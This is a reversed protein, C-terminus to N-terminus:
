EPQFIAGIAFAPPLDIGAPTDLALALQQPLLRTAPGATTPIPTAIEARGLPTEVVRPPQEALLPAAIAALPRGAAAALTPSATRVTFRAAARALGLDYLPTARDAPRIADADPGLATLVAPGPAPLRVRPLVLLLRGDALSFARTSPTVALRLAARPTVAEVSTETRALTLPEDPTRRFEATAGPVGLIWAGTADRLTQEAFDLIESPSWPLRALRIGLAAHRAPLARWIAARRDPTADRWIAVEDATRACGQCFGSAPDIDCIGICPSPALPSVALPM